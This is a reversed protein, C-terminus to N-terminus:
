GLIKTVAGRLGVLGTGTAVSTVLTEAQDPIHIGVAKLVPILALVLGSWWTVSKPQFYKM